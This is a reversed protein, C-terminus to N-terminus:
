NKQHNMLPMEEREPKRAVQSGHAVDPHLTKNMECFWLAAEKLQLGSAIVDDLFCINTVNKIWVKKREQGEQM